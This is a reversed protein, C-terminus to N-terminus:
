LRVGVTLAVFSDGRDFVSHGRGELSLRGWVVGVGGNIGFKNDTYTPQESAFYYAGTGLLGYAGKGRTLGAFRLALLVPIMRPNQGSVTSGFRMYALEIRLGLQGNATLPLDVSGSVQGGANVQNGFAGTPVVAGVGVGYTTSRQAAMLSACLLTMLVVSLWITSLRRM